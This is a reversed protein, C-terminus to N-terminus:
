RFILNLEHCSSWIKHDIQELANFAVLQLSKDKEKLSKTLPNIAQPDGIIGLSEAAKKRTYDGTGELATILPTISESGLKVCNEFNNQSMQYYADEKTTKPKWNLKKLANACINRHQHDSDKLSELLPHIAREDGIMGLIEAAKKRTYDGTGELAIILPITAPAGITVCREFNNQSMHYYAAEEENKPTWNLDKLVNSCVYRHNPDSDQLSKLLPVIAREDGLEGLSEAAKKRTYDGTGELATILPIVAPKGIKICEEFNNLSMFYYAEEEDNNAIWQLKKLLNATVDRHNHNSDKLEEILEEHYVSTISILAELANSRIEKDSDYQLSLLPRIARPDGIEKLLFISTHRTKSDANKMDEILPEVSAAGIKRLTKIADTRMNYNPDNLTAILPAISKPDKIEGLAYAANSRVYYDPDKLTEILPEVVRLDKINGLAQSTTMRVSYSPDNLSEILPEISKPDKIEGLAYAVNSRVTQDPDKLSDILPKVAPGGIKSLAEAVTNAAPFDPNKLTTILPEISPTGIEGLAETGSNRVPYVSDKLTAILPEISKPDKIQGLAYAANSRVSYVSDKLTAILPEVAKPDKIQSLAFAANYRVSYDPDKLAKILPCLTKPDKLKGLSEAANSRIFADKEYNLANILGEINKNKELKKVNPIMHKGFQGM